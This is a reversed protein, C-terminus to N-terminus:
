FWLPSTKYYYILMRSLCNSLVTHLRELMLDSLGKEFIDVSHTIPYKKRELKLSSMLLIATQFLVTFSYVGMLSGFKDKLFKSEAM